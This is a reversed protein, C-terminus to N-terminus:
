EGAFIEGFVPKAKELLFQAKKQLHPRTSWWDESKTMLAEFVTARDEYEFTKAYERVFWDEPEEDQGGAALRSDKQSYKFGKPNLTRWKDFAHKNNELICLEMAHWIEHHISSEAVGTRAFVIDLKGNENTQVGGFPIGRATIGDVLQFRLGEPYEKSVFRSFFETPYVSFADDMMLLLGTFRDNGSLMRLFPTSEKQSIQFEYEDLSFDSCERGMLITVGYHSQLFARLEETNSIEATAKPMMFCMLLLALLLPKARRM